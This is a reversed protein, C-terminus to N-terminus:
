TSRRCFVFRDDFIPIFENKIKEWKEIENNKLMPEIIFIQKKDKSVELLEQFSKKILSISDDISDNSTYKFPFVARNHVFEFVRIKKKLEEQCLSFEHPEIGPIRTSFQNTVRLKRGLPFCLFVVLGNKMTGNLSKISVTRM